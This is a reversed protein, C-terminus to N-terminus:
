IKRIQILCHYIHNIPLKNCIDIEINIIQKNNYFTTSSISEQSNFILLLILLIKKM